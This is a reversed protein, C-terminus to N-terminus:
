SINRNFYNSGWLVVLWVVALFGITMLAVMHSRGQHRQTTKIIPRVRGHRCDLEMGMWAPRRAHVTERHVKELYRPGASWLIQSESAGIDCQQRTGGRTRPAGLKESLKRDNVTSQPPQYRRKHGSEPRWLRVRVARLALIAISVVGCTRPPKLWKM